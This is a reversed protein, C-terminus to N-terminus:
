IELNKNIRVTLLLLVIYKVTLCIDKLSRDGVLTVKKIWSCATMKVEETNDIKAIKGAAPRVRRSWINLVSAMLQKILKRFGTIYLILKETQSLILLITPTSSLSPLLVLTTHFLSRLLPFTEVLNTDQVPPQIRCNNETLPFHHQIVSPAQKYALELIRDAVLILIKLTLRRGKPDATPLKTAPNRSTTGSVQAVSQLAILAKRLTSLSREESLQREWKSLPQLSLGGDRVDSIYEEDEVLEETELKALDRDVRKLFEYFSRENGESGYGNTAGM